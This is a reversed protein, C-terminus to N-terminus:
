HNSQFEVLFYCAAFTLIPSLIKWVIGLGEIRFTMALSIVAGVIALAFAAPNMEIDGLFEFM